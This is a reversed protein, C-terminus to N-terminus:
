PGSLRPARHFHHPPHQTTHDIIAQWLDAEAIECQAIKHITDIKHNLIDAFTTVVSKCDSKIWTPNHATQVVHLIARLEARYTSQAPGHLLSQYNHTSGEGFYVAWGSRALHNSTPYITSGDTYAHVYTLGNHISTRM